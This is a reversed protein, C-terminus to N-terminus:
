ISHPFMRMNGYARLVWYSGGFFVAMRLAHKIHDRTLLAGTAVAVAFADMSLGVAIALTTLTTLM